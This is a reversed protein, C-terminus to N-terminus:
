AYWWNERAADYANAADKLGIDRLLKSVLKDGETHALEPDAGELEEIADVFEAARKEQAEYAKLRQKLHAVEILVNM